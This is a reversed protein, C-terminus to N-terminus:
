YERPAPGITALRNAYAQVAWRHSLIRKGDRRGSPLPRDLRSGTSEAPGDPPVHIVTKAPSSRGYFKHVDVVRQVETRSVQWGAAM